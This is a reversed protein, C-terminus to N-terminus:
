LRILTADITKKEVDVKSIVIHVEDGLRLKEKTNYEELCYNDVDLSWTGAINSTKVLVDCGNEPISVFVGFELVSSILGKYVKGIRESMYICQMWKVSDRSAKQALKERESIHKCRAELKNINPQSKPTNEM